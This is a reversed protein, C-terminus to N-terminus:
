AMIKHFRNKIDKPTLYTDWMADQELTYLKNAIVEKGQYHLELRIKFLQKILGSKSTATLM